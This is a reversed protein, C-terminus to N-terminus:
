LKLCLQLLTPKPGPVQPPSTADKVSTMSDTRFISPPTNTSVKSTSKVSASSATSSTRAVNVPGTTRVTVISGSRSMSVSPSKPSSASTVSPDPLERYHIDYERRRDPDGLIESAEHVRSFQEHAAEKEEETSDPPLKDPHTELVKQKYARRVDEPSSNKSLGLIKYYDFAPTNM